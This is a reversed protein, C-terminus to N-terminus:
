SQIRHDHQVKDKVWVATVCKRFFARIKRTYCDEKLAKISVPGFVEEPTSFRNMLYEFYQPNEYANALRRSILSKATGPPGYLFTNHGAITGLLCVAIIQEREHIGECLQNITTQIHQQIDM